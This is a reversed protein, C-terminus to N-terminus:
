VSDMDIVISAIGWFDGSDPKDSFSSKFIPTRNIFAVGGQVLKVPGAVVTQGTDIARKVAQWQKPTKRYDLGVAKQNGALPYMFNIVYGEALAVNRIHHSSAMLERAIQNFKSHTIGDQATVLVSLARSLYITSNFTGELRARVASLYTLTQNRSEQEHKRTQNIEILLTIGLSIILVILGVVYPPYNKKM